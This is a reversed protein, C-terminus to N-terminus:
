PVRLFFFNPVYSPKTTNLGLLNAMAVFQGELVGDLKALQPSAKKQDLTAVAVKAASLTKHLLVLRKLAKNGYFGNQFYYITDEIANIADANAAVATNLDAAAGALDPTAAGIKLQASQIAEASDRLSSVIPFESTGGIAEGDLAFHNFGFIGGKKLNQAGIYIHFAATDPAAALTYVPMWGGASQDAPTARASFIFQTDTREIRLDVERANAFDISTGYTTGELDSVVAKLGHNPADYVAAIHLRRAASAALPQRFELLAASQGDILGTASNYAVTVQGTFKGFSNNPFTFVRAGTYDRSAKIVVRKDDAATLSRAHTSPSVVGPDAFNKVVLVFGSEDSFVLDGCDNISCGQMLLALAGLAAACIQRIKPTM